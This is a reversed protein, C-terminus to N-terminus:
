HHCTDKSTTCCKHEEKQKLIIALSYIERKVVLGIMLMLYCIAFLGMWIASAKMDVIYLVLSVSMFGVFALLVYIVLKNINERAEKIRDIGETVTDLYKM